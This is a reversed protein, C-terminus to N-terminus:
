TLLSRRAAPQLTWCGIVRALWRASAAISAQSVSRQGTRFFPGVLFSPGDDPDVLGAEVQEGAGDTGVRWASLRGEEAQRQAPIVQGDDAANGRRAPQQHVDLLTGVLARVDDPEQLVQQAVDGTLEQDDPVTGRDMTALRDLVEQSLAAGLADAQLLERAVGWVEVGVLADPVVELADLQAVDATQVEGMESAVEPEGGGAETM